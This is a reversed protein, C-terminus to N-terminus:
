ALFKRRDRIGQNPSAFYLDMLGVGELYQICACRQIVSPHVGEMLTLAVKIWAELIAPNEM